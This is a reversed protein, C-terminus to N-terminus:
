TAGGLITSLLDPQEVAYHKCEAVSISYSVDGVGRVLDRETIRPFGERVQFINSERPTYGDEDYLHSQQTLYGAHVLSNEFPQAAATGHLRTRLDDIIAPLTEGTCRHVDLSLHFLFLSDVGTSDLQRESVIRLVQHQKAATAKVEIACSGFQFDHPARDPGAWARAVTLPELHDLLSRALWLEAFLGRQREPPLGQLGSEELFRQWRRLRDVFEVVAREEGDIPAIADIIDAALVTFIDTFRPDTLALEITADRGDEGPRVIRAEVGLSSPLREVDGLSSESALMMLLRQNAPKAVGAFLDFASEPRVRRKFRGASGPPMLTELADWIAPLNV